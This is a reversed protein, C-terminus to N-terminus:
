NGKKEDTQENINENRSQMLKEIERKSLLSAVKKECNSRTYLVFWQKNM